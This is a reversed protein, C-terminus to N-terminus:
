LNSFHQKIRSIKTGQDGQRQQVGAQRLVGVQHCLDLLLGQTGSKELREQLWSRLEDKLTAEDQVGSACTLITESARFLGM